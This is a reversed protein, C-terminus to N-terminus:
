SRSYRGDPVASPYHRLLRPPHDQIVYPGNKPRSCQDHSWKLGNCRIKGQHFCATQFQLLDDVDLHYVTPALGVSIVHSRDLEVKGVLPLGIPSLRSGGTNGRKELEIRGVRAVQRVKHQM